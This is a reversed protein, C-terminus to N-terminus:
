TKRLRHKCSHSDHEPVEIEIMKLAIARSVQKHQKMDKKVKEYLSTADQLKKTLMMLMNVDPSRDGDDKGKDTDHSGAEPSAVKVNNQLVMNEHKLAEVESELKDIEDQSFM